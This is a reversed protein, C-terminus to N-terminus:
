EIYVQTTVSASRELQRDTWYVTATVTALGPRRPKETTQLQWRYASGTDGHAAPVAPWVWRSPSAEVWELGSLPAPMRGSRADDMVSQLALSAGAKGAVQAHLRKTNFYVGLFAGSATAVIALSVMVEMIMYGRRAREMEVELRIATVGRLM